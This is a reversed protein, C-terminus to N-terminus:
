LWSQPCKTRFYSYSFNVFHRIKCSIQWLFYKMSTKQDPTPMEGTEWVGILLFLM